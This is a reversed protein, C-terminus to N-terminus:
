CSVVYQWTGTKALFPYIKSHVKSHFKKVPKLIPKLAPPSLKSIDEIPVTNVFFVSIWTALFVNLLFRSFRSPKTKSTKNSTGNNTTESVNSEASPAVPKVLFVLWGLITNWEFTHMNMSLDIGVHFLIISILIPMRTAAPWILIWCALELGLSSWCLFKLSAMRNFLFDPNFVGGYFDDTHMLWFLATGDRWPKGNVKALAAGPYIFCIQIQWLRFPWMAWSDNKYREKIEKRSMFLEFVTLRHLPMFLFLLAWTRFMVDQADLLLYNHHHFSVMNLFICFIQFRPAIGLLLLIGQVLGLYYVTWLLLENDPALQFITLQNPDVDPLNRAVEFPIVGDPFFFWKFDLGIVLRDAIYLAAYAIRM